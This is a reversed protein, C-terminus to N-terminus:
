ENKDGIFEARKSRYHALMEVAAPDYQKVIWYGIVDDLYEDTCEAIVDYICMDKELWLRYINQPTFAVAEDEENFDEFLYFQQKRLFDIYKYALAIENVFDEENMEQLCNYMHEDTWIKETPNKFEKTEAEKFAKFLENTLENKM